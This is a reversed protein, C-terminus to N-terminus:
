DVVGLSDVDSDAVDAFVSGNPGTGNSQGLLVDGTVNNDPSDTTGFLEVIFNTDATAVPADNNGFVSITVTSVATKGDPDSVTYTFSDTLPADGVQLFM